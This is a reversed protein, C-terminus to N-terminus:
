HNRYMRRLKMQNSYRHDQPNSTQFKFHRDKFKKRKKFKYNRYRRRRKKTKQKKDEFELEIFFGSIKKRRRKLLSLDFLGYSSLMMVVMFLSKM